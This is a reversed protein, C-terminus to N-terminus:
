ILFDRRGVSGEPTEDTPSPVGYRRRATPRGLVSVSIPADDSPREAANGNATALTAHGGSGPTTAVVGLSEDSKDAGVLVASVLRMGALRIMEGVAQIKTWSSRGATVVVVADGAWTALHEAGASPDLTVLTLLIDASPRTADVQSAHTSTAQFSSSRFPGVPAMENSDPIAVTIKAGDVSVTHVGPDKAGVLTAAPSGGCLDALIVRQDEHAWSVASSVVALAAVKTDDVPVVALAGRRSTTPLVSRLFAVIRQVDRSQAAALGRRSPRWRRVSRASVSLKVPAGLALAVDDRQRVRDSVLARLIVIGGGLVLGIILGPGGYLAVAKVHSGAPLPRAADLVKSQGVMAATTAQTTAKAASVQEKLTTLDSQARDRATQLADLEAQQSRSTPEDAVQSIRAEISEVQEQSQALQQDFAAFQLDQQTQLQDARFDLFAAAIANARSVAQYSSPGSVTMRLVRDTVVEATYSEVFDDVSEPLGLERLALQAVGHSQAVSQDNLIVTGPQGEPGVTLLLTTSAQYGPKLMWGVGLGLVLGLLALGVWFRRGRRLAATFFGLSVLGTAFDASTDARADNYDDDFRLRAPGDDRESGLRRPPGTERDRDSM